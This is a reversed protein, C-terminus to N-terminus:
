GWPGPSPSVLAAHPPSLAQSEESPRAPGSAVLLPETSAVAPLLWFFPGTPHLSQYKPAPCPTGLIARGSGLGSLSLGTDARDRLLQWPLAPRPAAEAVRCGVRQLVGGLGAWEARPVPAHAGHTTMEQEHPRAALAGLGM